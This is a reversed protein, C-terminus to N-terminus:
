IPSHLCWPGSHPGERCNSPSPELNCSYLWAIRSHVSSRMDCINQKEQFGRIADKYKYVFTRQRKSDSTSRIRRFISGLHKANFCLISLVDNFNFNNTTDQHILFVKLLFTVLDFHKTRISKTAGSQEDNFEAQVENMEIESTDHLAQFYQWDM